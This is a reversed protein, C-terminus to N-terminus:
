RRRRAAMLGGLGLMAAAGPSPVAEGVVNMVIHMNPFGIAALSTPSAIGCSPARIFSPDTQGDANSGIFFRHGAGNTIADAVFIEVTFEGTLVSASIPLSLLSLSQNSVSYSQSAIPSGLAGLTTSSYINMTIPQDAGQNGAIASEIGIQVQSINFPDTVGFSALNFTRYYSNEATVGGASCAVSGPTPVLSASHSINIASASGAAAAFAACVIAIGTKM